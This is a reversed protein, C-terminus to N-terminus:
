NEDILRFTVKQKIRGRLLWVGIYYPILVALASLGSLAEDGTLQLAVVLTVILLLLPIIVAVRLAYTVVDRAASVTVEDGVHLTDAVVGTSVEVIKEKAEAAHCHGAVSCGACASTQVIRVKVHGDGVSEIIGSHRIDNNM